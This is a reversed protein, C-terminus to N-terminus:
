YRFVPTVRHAKVLLASDWYQLQSNKMLYKALGGQVSWDLYLSVCFEVLEQLVEPVEPIVVSYSSFPM